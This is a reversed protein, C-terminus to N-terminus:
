ILLRVKVCVDMIFCLKWNSKLNVTMAIDSRTSDIFPFRLLQKIDVPTSNSSYLTHLIFGLITFVLRASGLLGRVKAVMHLYLM